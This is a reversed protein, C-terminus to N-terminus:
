IICSYWGILRLFLSSEVIHQKWSLFKLYLPVFLYLHFCPSNYVMFFLCLVDSISKLFFSKTSMFSSMEYHKFSWNMCFEYFRFCYIRLKLIWPAFSVFYFPLLCIQLYWPASVNAKRESSSIFGSLHFIYKLLCRLYEFLMM